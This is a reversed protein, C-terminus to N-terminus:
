LEEVYGDVSIDTSGGGAANKYEVTNTGDNPMWIRLQAGARILRSDFSGGNPRVYANQSTPSVTLLFAKATSPATNSLSVDTYSTASGGSLALFFSQTAWTEYTRTRGMGVCLFPVIDGNGGNMFCGIRRFITYGSPLTPSTSSTSLLSAVAGSSPNKVVYVHYFTASAETGTDLGNAGSSTLSATLSTSVLIDDVNTSDRCEGVSIAVASATSYSLALGEVAGQPM